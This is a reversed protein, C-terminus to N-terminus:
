HSYTEPGIYMKLPKYGAQEIADRLRPDKSIHQAELDKIMKDLDLAYQANKFKQDYDIEVGSAKKISSVSSLQMEAKLDRLAMLQKFVPLGQFDLWAHVATAVTTDKLMTIPHYLDAPLGADRFNKRKAEEWDAGQVLRPSKASYTWLIYRLISRMSEPKSFHSFLSEFVDFLGLNELLTEWDNEEYSLITQYPDIM